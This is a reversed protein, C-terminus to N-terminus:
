FVNKINYLDINEMAERTLLITIPQNIHVMSDKLSLLLNQLLQADEVEPLDKFRTIGGGLLPITIPKNAYVRSIEHWMNLLCDKYDKYSLIAQNDKFHSFALLMYDNITIIHGLHFQAEDSSCKSSNMIKREQSIRRNLEKINSVHELIFRGNLSNKAIVIDNVETDYYENFPIVKWGSLKFIDGQRIIVKIGRISLTKKKYSNIVKVFSAIILIVFLAALLIMCRQWWATGVIVDDLKINAVTFVSAIVTFIGTTVNLSDRWLSSSSLKKLRMHMKIQISM